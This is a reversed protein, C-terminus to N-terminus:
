YKMHFEISARREEPIIFIVDPFMPANIRRVKCMSGGSCVDEWTKTCEPNYENFKYFHVEYSHVHGEGYEYCQYDYYEADPAAKRLLHVAYAKVSMGYIIYSAIVLFPIAVIVTSLIIILKRKM